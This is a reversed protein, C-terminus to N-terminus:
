EEQKLKEEEQPTEMKPRNITASEVIENVIEPEPEVIEGNRELESQEQKIRIKEIVSDELIDFPDCGLIKSYKTAIRRTLCGRKEQQSVASTSINLKVAFVRPPIQSEIRKQKLKSPM